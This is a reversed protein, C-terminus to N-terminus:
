IKQKSFYDIRNWIDGVPVGTRVSLMMVVIFSSEGGAAYDEIMHNAMDKIQAPTYKM